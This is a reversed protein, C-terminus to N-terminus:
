AEVAANRAFLPGLRPREAAHGALQCRCTEKRKAGRRLIALIVSEVRYTSLLTRFQESHRFTPLRVGLAGADVKNGLPVPAPL